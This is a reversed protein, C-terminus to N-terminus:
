GCSGGRGIWGRTSLGRGGSLWYKLGDTLLYYMILVSPISWGNLLVGSKM